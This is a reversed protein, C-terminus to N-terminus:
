SRWMKQAQELDHIEPRQIDQKTKVTLKNKYTVQTCLPLEKASGKYLSTKPGTAAQKTTYSNGRRENFVLQKSRASM